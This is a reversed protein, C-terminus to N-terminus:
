KIVLNQVWNGPTTKGIRFSEGVGLIPPNSDRKKRDYEYMVYKQHDREFLHVEGGEQIPFGLDAHPRGPKPIQSSHISFGSAIPRLLLCVSWQSGRM